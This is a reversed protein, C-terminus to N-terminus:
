AAVAAGVREDAEAERVLELLTSFFHARKSQLPAHQTSWSSSTHGCDLCFWQAGERIVEGSCSTGM